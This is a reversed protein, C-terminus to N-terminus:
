LNKPKTSCSCSSCGCNGSKEKKSFFFQYLKYCVIGLVIIGIAYVIIEQM